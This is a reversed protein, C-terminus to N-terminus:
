ASLNRQKMIKWLNNKLETPKPWIKCLVVSKAHMKQGFGLWLGIHAIM